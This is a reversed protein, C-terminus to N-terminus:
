RKTDEGTPVSSTQNSSSEENEEVEQKVAVVLKEGRKEGDMNILEREKNKESEQNQLCLM